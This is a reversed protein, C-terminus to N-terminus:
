APLLPKLHIQLTVLSVRHARCATELSKLREVDVTPGNVVVCDLQEADVMSVLAQFDGVVPYGQVRAHRQQPDDDVFGLIRLATTTGFAARITSLAAGGTGYIVCRQGITRRREVFEGVLRFSARSASLMLMLLAAYIVFVSRSYNDFRYAYLIVLEAGATGLLVGKAFVVADMMGFHRWVGRYGGVVFLALLQVALIVPLSQLFYKYNSGLLVGEFRLRYATYYALPIICSDLLVEAVRRKYMFDSVLPTLSEPRAGAAGVEDYVRIRSLYVAFVVLALAFGLAAILGWSPDHRQMLLAIVGGGAALTWLVTVAMPESLGIAVLRHSAHDRGGLSPARGSLLRLATVLTTDFIPIMLLLVPVAVVSLLGARGSGDQRAALTLAAFNVGLFLSGTDGMFISAPHANFALFGATAGILTAVYLALPTDAGVGDGVLAGLVFVGAITAIGACLGDMNDLLNFANTIGVIWFLTLMADGVLSTVWHLRYGFFLLTSAVLVQAILKTSPKLPLIDDALGFAAILGGSLLLPQLESLPRISAGLALATGSIAVGGFLATPRQHWRDEKPAALYGLRRAAARALPTLALSVGFAALGQLFLTLM